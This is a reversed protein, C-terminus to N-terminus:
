KIDKPPEAVRLLEEITTTGNLVKLVGDEFLSVSGQQRALDWIEKKSPKKMILEEMEPTVELFEFIGMRGKYGTHACVNCGKGKYLTLKEKPFYKSIGPYTKEIGGLSVEESFRCHDCIKRVLRQAIVLDLTSAMLFPETGMDLLRPVTTSSDNAHFTSFLLHGTLAANVAIEATENDRIEGVLIIDPDQRVISRLGRAFTLEAQRNVQIQNVGTVRYEVPDEITTINVEPRNVEKLLAYLTTTKGSGTPGVCLIMGFPKKGAKLVTAEQKQSFGLDKLTFGRVYHSLMRIVVKEGGLTPAVSVRMDNWQDDMKFRIAGDQTTLHEDIRMKAQVKIRNLISEYNDKGIKAAQHLVGDVRFRIIVENERPEFHVDSAKHILADKYIEDLIEPAVKRSAEIIKAFRTDLTKTYYIFIENIDTALAYFIEVKKGKFVGQLSAELGAKKPDDTAVIVKKVEDKFLVVRYEKAIDEPIKKVQEATPKYTNLDAYDVGYFEAVAQGLMDPTVLSLSLLAERLSSDRRKAEDEGLKIDEPLLYDGKLLIDKIQQDSLAM